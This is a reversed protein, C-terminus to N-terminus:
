LKGCLVKRYIEEYQEVIPGEAFDNLAREKASRGMSQMLKPNALLKSVNEAMDGIDGVDSLYGDVGERVV